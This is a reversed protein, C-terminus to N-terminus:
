FYLTGGYRKLTHDFPSKLPKKVAWDMDNSVDNKWGCTQASEFDCSPPCTAEDAQNACDAKFDCVKYIPICQGDGCSSYM